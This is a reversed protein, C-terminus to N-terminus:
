SETASAREPRMRVYCVLSGGYYGNSDNRYDIVARGQETTIKLGYYQVCDPHPCLKTPISGLNAMKIHEVALVRGQLAGPDDISEIWTRSCCDAEVILEIEDGDDCFLQLMLGDASLAHGVLVRDMLASKISSVWM